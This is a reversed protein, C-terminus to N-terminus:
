TDEPQAAAGIPDVLFGCTMAFFTMMAPTRLPYDVLSHVLLLLVILSAARALSRDIEAGDGDRRWAERARLILWGLFVALLFVGPLGTELWLELLENHARNVYAGATLDSSKEFTAYVPVFAGVGAGVPMTTVAAKITTRAIVLRSDGLPDESFRRIVPSLAFQSPLLAVLAAAVILLKVPGSRSGMGPRARRVLLTAGFMAFVTLGIGARSRAAFEAALLILFTCFAVLGAALRASHVGGRERLRAGIAGLDAVWASTLIMVCYLQAAFHNRNVFFGVAAAEEGPYFRFADGGLRAIQILGLAAAAVGAGIALLSLRRRQQRGLTLVSLFVGLPPLLSLAGLWTADPTMSIPAWPLEKGILEYSTVLAARGPLRTWVGPPLPVLQLAPTALAAACFLLAVGIRRPLQADMLRWGAIALAPLSIMQLAANAAYRHLTGGGVIQSALFCAACALYLPDVWSRSASARESLKQATSTRLM